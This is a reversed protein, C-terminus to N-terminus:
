PPEVGQAAPVYLSIQERAGQRQRIEHGPEFLEILLEPVERARALFVSGRRRFERPISM